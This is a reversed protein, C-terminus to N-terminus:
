NNDDSPNALSNLEDIIAQQLCKNDEIDYLLQWQQQM